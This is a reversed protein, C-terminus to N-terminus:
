SACPLQHSDDGHDDTCHDPSEFCAGELCGSVGDFADAVNDRFLLVGSLIVVVVVVSLIM